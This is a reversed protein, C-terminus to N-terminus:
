YDRFGAPVRAYFHDLRETVPVVILGYGLPLALFLVVGFHEPRVIAFDKNGPNIVILSTALM